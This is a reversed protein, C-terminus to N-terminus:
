KDLLDRAIGLAQVCVRRQENIQELQTRLEEERAVLEEHTLGSLEGHLAQEEELRTQWETEQEIGLRDYISRNSGVVNDTM